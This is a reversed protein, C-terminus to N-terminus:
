NSCGMLKNAQKITSAYWLGTPNKINAPTLIEAKYKAQFDRVAKDTAVGFYKVSTVSFLGQDKLFAQVKLVEVDNSGKKLNKTFYPCTVSPQTTPQVVVVPKKVFLDNIFKRTKTSVFGLESKLSYTNQFSILAKQTLGAFINTEKGFSGVGARAVYFNNLNLFKQLVNVDKDISGLRLTKTLLSIAPKLVISGGGSTVQTTGGTTINQNLCAQGTVPSFLTVLTCGVPNTITQCAQGTIPSFLTVLTCGVPNTSVTPPTIIPPTYSGGGGGGGGGGVIVCSQTLVPSGGTCGSPSSSIITRSQSGGSCSSFSSYTWSTCTVAGRTSIPRWDTNIKFNSSGCSSTNLCNFSIKSSDSVITAYGSFDGSSNITVGTFNIWGLKEGWANGGLTGEGDNTVHGTATGNANLNIWGYRENWAYGTLGVDTVHVNGNAILGFNVWGINEGWAYKSTSDITGDTNSAFLYNPILIGLTFIFCILILLSNNKPM